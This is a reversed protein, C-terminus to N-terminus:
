PLNEEINRSRTEWNRTLCLFYGGALWSFHPAHHWPDAPKEIHLAFLLLRSGSLLHPTEGRAKEKQLRHSASLLISGSVISVHTVSLKAIM